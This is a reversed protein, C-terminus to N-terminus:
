VHVIVVCGVATKKKKREKEGGGMAEVGAPPLPVLHASLGSFLRSFRPPALQGATTASAFSSVPVSEPDELLCSTPEGLSYHRGSIGACWISHHSVPPPCIGVQGGAPAINGPEKM